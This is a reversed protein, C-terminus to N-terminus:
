HVTHRPKREGVRQPTATTLLEAASPPHRNYTCGSFLQNARLLYVLHVSWHSVHNENDSWHTHQQTTTVRLLSSILISSVICNLGLTATSTPPPRHLTAVFGVTTILPVAETPPTISITPPTQCSITSSRLSDAAQRVKSTLVHFRPASQLSPPKVLLPPSTALPRVTHYLSPPPSTQRRLPPLPPPTQYPIPRSHTTAPQEDNPCAGHRLKWIVSASTQACLFLALGWKGAKTSTLRGGVL